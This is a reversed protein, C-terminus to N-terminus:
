GFVVLPKLHPPKRISLNRCFPLDRLYEDNTEDNTYMDVYIEVYEEGNEIKFEYVMLDIYKDVNIKAHEDKSKKTEKKGKGEKKV